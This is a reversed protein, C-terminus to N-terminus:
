NNQMYFQKINHIKKQRDQENRQLNHFSVQLKTELLIELSSVPWSM